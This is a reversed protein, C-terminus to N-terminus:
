NLKFFNFNRVPQGARRVTGFHKDVLGQFEQTNVNGAGVVVLNQGVFNNEHFEKIQEQTIVQLNERIGLM